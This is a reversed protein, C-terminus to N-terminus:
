EYMGRFSERQVLEWELVVERVAEEFTTYFSQSLDRSTTTVGDLEVAGLKFASNGM